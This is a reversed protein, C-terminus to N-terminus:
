ASRRFGERELWRGAEEIEERGLEHGGPHWHPEVDAGADGLLAVLRETEARPVMPDREGAAVFVRTGSLDPLEAPVFPVMPRLLIAGDLLGPRLLMIGSAINAGNSYGVAVIRSDELAYHSRAREVFDALEHARLALDEVDLVGPALRRFFRPAGAELVKGRPSIMAAEPALEAGLPLLDSENGGTGHLLLLTLPPQPQLPTVFRHAFGLDDPM